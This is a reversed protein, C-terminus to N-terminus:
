TGRQTAFMGISRYLTNIKETVDAVPDLVIMKRQNTLTITTDPLAEITEIHIINLSFVTGNLRQLEIM